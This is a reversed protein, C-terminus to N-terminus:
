EERLAKELCVLHVGPIGNFVCPVVGVERSGLRGYLARARLNKENTDMRLCPCGQALAYEEYFRVFATAIGRGELAPDVALTHLVMVQDDAAEHQWPVQAYVPVQERNIKGSAAIIGNDEAVFMDGKEISERASAATPYIARNWGTTALGSEERTHIKDYIEAIQPADEMVASRFTLM